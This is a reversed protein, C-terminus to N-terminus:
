GGKNGNQRNQEIKDISYGKTKGQLLFPPLIFIFVIM